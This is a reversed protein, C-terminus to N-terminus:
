IERLYVYCFFFSAYVRRCLTPYTATGPAVGAPKAIDVM